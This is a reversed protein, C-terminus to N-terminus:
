RIWLPSDRQTTEIACLQLKVCLQRKSQRLQRLCQYRQRKGRISRPTPRGEGTGQSMEPTRHSLEVPEIPFRKRCRSGSLSRGDRGIGRSFGFRDEQTSAIQGGRQSRLNPKCAQLEQAVAATRRDQDCQRRIRTGSGVGIAGRDGFRHLADFDFMSREVKGGAASVVM